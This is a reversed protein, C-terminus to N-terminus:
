GVFLSGGDPPLQVTAYLLDVLHLLYLSLTAKEKYKKEVAEDDDNERDGPCRSIKQKEKECM